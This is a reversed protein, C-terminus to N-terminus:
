THKCTISRNKNNIMIWVIKKLISLSCLLDLLLSAFCIYIYIYTGPYLSDFNLWQMSTDLISAVYVVKLYFPPPSLWKIILTRNALQHSIALKTWGIIAWFAFPQIWGSRNGEIYSHVVFYRSWRKNAANWKRSFDALSFLVERVEALRMRSAKSKMSSHIEIQWRLLNWALILKYKKKKKNFFDFWYYANNIIDWLVLEVKWPAIYINRKTM